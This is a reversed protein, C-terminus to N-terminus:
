REDYTGFAHMSCGDKLKNKQKKKNKQFNLWFALCFRESIQDGGRLCQRRKHARMEASPPHPHIAIPRRSAATPPAVPCSSLTQLLEGEEM